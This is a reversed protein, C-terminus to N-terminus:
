RQVLLEYMIQSSVHHSQVAKWIFNGLFSYLEITSSFFECKALPMLYYLLIFGIVFNVVTYELWYM